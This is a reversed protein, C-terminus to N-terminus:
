IYWVPIQLINERLQGPQPCNCVIAGMGRQKGPIRDLVQFAAAQEAKVNVGKKIEIPHLQGESEIILDIECEQEQLSGNVRTKLRDRGHYYSVFHRYDLGCNAFSKLIESVVFSEFFKGSMAGYALAEASLWRTLYCALGIDRFYLKPAKIARKLATSAFPKLLYVLGSCELISLWKKVTGQNVGVENAINAYNLIEGSRSAAAIVFNRFQELDQVATLQRVDREVYTQVYNAYFDSWNREPAQLEPYSGRHIFEWINGPPRLSQRRRLVYDLDPKFPENFSDGQIERLSLGGLEVICIRGALSESVDRMLNFQQSGSLLFLGRRSSNDCHIKIHRFLEPARQAEDIILPPRNLTLFMGGEHRAQSELFPDDLSIYNLEPFLTQLLTSKGVRRAGSLLLAPYSASSSLIFGELSRSIYSLILGWYFVCQSELIAM